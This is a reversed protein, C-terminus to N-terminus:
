LLFRLMFHRGNQSSGLAPLMIRRTQVESSRPTIAVSARQSCSRESVEIGLTGASSVEFACWIPHGALTQQGAKEAGRSLISSFLPTAPDLCVVVGILVLLM